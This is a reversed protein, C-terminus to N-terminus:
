RNKVEIWVARAVARVHGPSDLVASATNLKRGDRALPWAMLVYESGADLPARLRGLLIRGLNGFLDTVIGSPCDLAAWVFEHRVQGDAAGLAADPTWPAAYVRRGAVPGPFIRLGDGAARRPGCVFCTPYPHEEFWGYRAAAAHADAISVPPPLDVTLQAPRAEVVVEGDRELRVSDDDRRVALPTSLPPPSRLTVEAPGDIHRAAMACTYGGNASEPPGRFRPEITVETVGALTGGSHSLTM